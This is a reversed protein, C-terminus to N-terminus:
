HIRYAQGFPVLVVNSREKYTNAQGTTNDRLNGQGVFVGARIADEIVFGRLTAQVDGVTALGFGGGHLGQDAVGSM